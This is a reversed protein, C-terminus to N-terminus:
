VDGLSSKADGLSSKADGLSSKADGLSSKADGLSSKADGVTHHQTPVDEPGHLALVFTGRETADQTRDSPWDKKQWEGTFSLETASGQV